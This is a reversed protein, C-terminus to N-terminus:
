KKWGGPNVDGGEYITVNHWGRVGDRVENRVVQRSSPQTRFKPVEYSTGPAKHTALFQKQLELQTREEPTNLNENELQKDIFQILESFYKSTNLLCFNRYHEERATILFYGSAILAVTVSVGCIIACPGASFPLLMAPLAGAAVIGQSLGHLMVYTNDAIQEQQTATILRSGNRIFDDVKNAIALPLALLTGAKNERMHETLTKAKVEGIM